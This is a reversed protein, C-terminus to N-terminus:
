VDCESEEEEMRTCSEWAYWMMTKLQLVDEKWAVARNQERFEQTLKECRSVNAPSVFDVAAKICDGVNCVQHACGAPIFVADGPKQVIRYSKVKKEEFLQKRLATDLFHIQTHIPDLGEIANPFHEDLFERILKSDDARYINWVAHGDSGDARKAAYMMINVADAMDMHLRTSGKGGEGESAEFANYMKPGLDPAVANIPFHASINMIGDRRTYIPAPLIASFDDYLEPFTQRFDQTPPWDRLKFCANRGAYKGFQAFFEAVTSEQKEETQCNIIICEQDGYNRRFYEPTWESQSRKLCGEVVLPEGRDWVTPFTDNTISDLPFVLLPHSPVGCPDSPYEITYPVTSNSILLTEFPQAFCSPLEDNRDPLAIDHPPALLKMVNLVREVHPRDFRSVPIFTSSYHAQNFGCYLRRRKEPDQRNLFHVYGEQPAEHDYERLRDYCDSCLERGCCGGMWCGAFISTMCLDCTARVSVERSRRILNPLELHRLEQELLPILARAISTKIMTISTPSDLNWGDTFFSGFTLPVEAESSVFKQGVYAGDLMFLERLNIYGCAGGKKKERCPRCMGARPQPDISNCPRLQIFRRDHRPVSDEEYVPLLWSPQTTLVFVKQNGNPDAELKRHIPKLPIVSPKQMGSAAMDSQYASPSARKRKRINSSKADLNEVYLRPVVAKKPTSTLEGLERLTATMVEQARISASRLPRGARSYLAEPHEQASHSVKTESTDSSPARKTSKAVAATKGKAVNRVADGPKSSLIRAPGPVLADFAPFGMSSASGALVSDPMDEHAFRGSAPLSEGPPISSVSPSLSSGPDSESVIRKGRASLMNSTRRAKRPKRRPASSSTRSDENWLMLSLDDPEETNTTCADVHQSIEAECNRHSLFGCRSCWYRDHLERQMMTKSCNYESVHEKAEHHDKFSIGPHSSCGYWTVVGAGNPGPVLAPAHSISSSYATASTSDDSNFLPAPPPNHLPTSVSDFTLHADMVAVPTRGSPRASLSPRTSSPVSPTPRSAPRRREAKVTPTRSPSPQEMLVVGAFQMSGIVEQRRPTVAGESM